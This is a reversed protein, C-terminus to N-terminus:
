WCGLLLLMGNDNGQKTHMMGYCRSEAAEQMLISCCGKTQYESDMRRGDGVTKVQPYSPAAGDVVM